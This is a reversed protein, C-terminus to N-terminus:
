RAAIDLCSKFKASNSCVVDGIVFEYLRPDLFFYLSFDKAVLWHFLIIFEKYLPQKYNEYECRSLCEM